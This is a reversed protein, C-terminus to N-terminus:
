QFIRESERSFAISSDLMNSDILGFNEDIQSDDTIEKMYDAECDAGLSKVLNEFAEAGNHPRQQDDGDVVELIEELQGNLKTSEVEGNVIIEQMPESSSIISENQKMESDTSIYVFEPSQKEAVVDIQPM